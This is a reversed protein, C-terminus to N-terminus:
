TNRQWSWTPASTYTLTIVWNHNVMVTAIGGSPITFVTHTNGSIGVAVACTSAGATIYVQADANFTNPLPVTTAPVGPSGINTGIEPQFDRYYSPRLGGAFISGIAQGGVAHSDRVESQNGALFKCPATVAGGTMLWMRTFALKGTSVVNLDYGTGATTNSGTIRINEFDNNIGATVRLGDTGSSEIIFDELTSNNWSLDAGIGQASTVGSEIINYQPLVAGSNAEALISTGTWGAGGGVDLGDIFVGQCDGKLHLCNGTSATGSVAYLNSGEIDHTDEFFFGDSGFADVFINDLQTAVSTGNLAGGLFGQVHIGALGAHCYLDSFVLDFPNNPAATPIANIFWGNLYMGNCRQILVGNAGVLRIGDCAPNGTYTSTGPQFFLDEIVAGVTTVILLAAGVFGVTPRITSIANAGSGSFRISKSSSTLPVSIMYVGPPFFVTGSRTNAACANIAAQIAATDDTSGDGKAGYLPHTVDFWPGPGAMRVATAFDGGGVGATPTYPSISSDKVTVSNLVADDGRTYGIRFHPDYLTWFAGAGVLPSTYVSYEAPPPPSSVFNFQGNGDTPNVTTFTTAPTVNDRFQVYLGAKGVGTLVYDTIALVPL